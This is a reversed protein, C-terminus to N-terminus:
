DLVRHLTECHLRDSQIEKLPHRLVPQANALHQANGPLYPLTTYNPICNQPNALVMLRVETTDPPIAM